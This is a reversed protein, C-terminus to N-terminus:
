LIEIECYGYMPSNSGVTIVIENLAISNKVEINNSKDIVNISKGILEKPLSVKDVGVSHYDLYLYHKGGNEVIFQNTSFDKKESWGRFAVGNVMTNAPVINNVGIKGEVYRPYLKKTSTMFWANDILDSRVGGLPLYGLNFNINLDTSELIDVVRSTPKNDEWVSSDFNMRGSVVPTKFEPALRFDYTNGNNTIPLVKPFYRKITDAFSPQVFTNQTIGFYNLKIEKRTMFSNLMTIKGQSQINFITSFDVLESSENFAPQSEYGATPRNNVINNVTELWDCISYSEELILKNGKYTGNETILVGDLLINQQINKIISGLQELTDGGTFSISTQSNGNSVYTLPTVPSSIVYNNSGTSLKQTVRINNTDIVELVVFELNNNDEYISGIDALTKGHSTSTIIRTNAGHNGGIYYDNLLTPCSEDAGSGNLIVGTSDNSESKLLLRASFINYLNNRANDETNKLEVYIDYIDNFSTRYNFGGDTKTVSFLDDTNILDPNLYGSGYDFYPLEVESEAVQLNDYDGIDNFRVTIQFSVADIPTKFAGNVDILRFVGRETGDSNLPELVGGNVDYCVVEKQLTTRGSIYYVTDPKCEMVPSVSADSRSVLAGTSSNIFFGDIVLDKNFLNVTTIIDEKFDDLYNIVANSTVPLLNDEELVNTVGEFFSSIFSYGDVSDDYIYNGNDEGGETFVFFNGVQDAEPVSLADTLTLFSVGAGQNISSIQTKISEIENDSYEFNSNVKSFSERTTDANPDNHESGINIIEISM